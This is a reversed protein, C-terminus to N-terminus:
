RADLKDPKLLNRPESIGLGETSSEIKRFVATYCAGRNGTRELPLFLSALALGLARMPLSNANTGLINALSMRWGFRNWAVSGADKHTLFEMEMGEQHLKSILVEPPILLVHRPADVHAWYRGLVRLQLSLPNPTAVLLIGGRVVKKAAASIVDWANPIHEISQWLVIGDCDNARTLTEAANRTQIAKVGVIERLFNCCDADMELGQYDFGAQKALTAFAGYSPGIELLRGVPMFRKVLEIKYREIEARAALEERKPIRYYVPPYYDSLNEPVPSLFILGCKQCRFYTFPMDSVRRNYDHTELLRQASFRCLPCDATL